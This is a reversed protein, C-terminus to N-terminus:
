IIGGPHEVLANREMIQENERGRDTASRGSSRGIIKASLHYGAM